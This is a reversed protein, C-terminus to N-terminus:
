RKLTVLAGAHSPFKLMNECLTVAGGVSEASVAKWGDSLKLTVEADESVLNTMVLYHTHGDAIHETVFGTQWDAFAVRAPNEAELAKYFVEWPKDEVAGPTRAYWTELPFSLFYVKGKGYSFVAFAPNGDEERALVNAGVAELNWRIEGPIPFTSGSFTVWGTERRRQRTMVRLGTFGEFPNMLGGDLSVYLKAGREVRALLEKFVHGRLAQDGTVSPVLYTEAEPIADDCWAFHLNLGAKAALLWSGYAAAWADQGHTLVCVADSLRRPLKPVSVNKMFGNFATMEQLVPKPTRDPRMLGLEREIANWDYPAHTLKTQDFGCWWILARNDCGWLTFLLSRVYEATEAEGAIMPGLNGVEEAVCPRGSLDAYMASEAPAHMASKMGNLPDTDCWPTFLPYPHTCLFDTTEGQDQPALATEPVVSHMGSVVPRTPDEARIALSILSMWAYMEEATSVEGLCNCENGLDWAGIAPHDKLTKVLYRVYKTEWTLALPDKLLNREELMSPAYLRGSMWGTLLGVILTIGNEQAIDCMVRFRRVMEEDVGAKGAETHPLPEEGMRVEMPNGAWGRLQKIPQFDSWLPFVRVVTLGAERIARFDERIVDEQWDHWMNTGAHSAWYNCGVQMSGEPFIRDSM